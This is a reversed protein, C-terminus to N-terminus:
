LVFPTIVFSSATSRQGMKMRPADEYTVPVQVKEYIIVARNGELDVGKNLISAINEGAKRAASDNGNAMADAIAEFYLKSGQQVFETGIWKGGLEAGAGKGEGVLYVMTGDPRKWRHIADFDGSRSSQARYYLSPRAGDQWARQKAWTDLAREGIEHSADRVSKDWKKAATDDGTAQADNRLRRARDRAELLKDLRARESKSMLLADDRRKGSESLPLDQEPGVKAKVDFRTEGPLRSSLFSRFRGYYHEIEGFTLTTNPNAALFKRRFEGLPLASWQPDAVLSDVTKKAHLTAPEALERPLKGAALETDSIHGLELQKHRLNNLDDLARLLEDDAMPGKQGELESILAMKDAIEIAVAARHAALKEQPTYKAYPKGLDLQAFLHALNPDRTQMVHRVEERVAAPTATEDVLIKTVRGREIVAKAVRAGGLQGPPVLEIQPQVEGPHPPGLVDHAAALILARADTVLQDMAAPSAKQLDALRSGREQPTSATELRWRATECAQELDAGWGFHEYLKAVLKGGYAHALEIVRPHGALQSYFTLPLDSTFAPDALARLFSPVQEPAVMALLEDIVRQEFPPAKGGALGGELRRLGEKAAPDGKAVLVAADRAAVVARGTQVGPPFTGEPVYYTVEGTPLRGELVGPMTKSQTLSKGPMSPDAPDYFAELQARAEPSFAVFGRVLPRFFTAGGSPPKINLQSLRLQMEAIHATYGHLSTQLEAADIVGSGAAENLLKLEEAWLSEIQDFLKAIEAPSAEGRSLGDLLRKLPARKAELENVRSALKEVIKGGIAKTLREQLPETIFKGAELGVMLAVNQFIADVREDGTMWRGETILHQLEGFGHLSIMATGARGLGLSLKAIRGADEPLQFVKAYGMNVLKLFGMTVSNWFWDVVFRGQPGGILVGQGFRSVTTFVLGGILAEGALAYGLGVGAARFGAFALSGATGGTLAAAAVIVLLKAVINIRNVWKLRSQFTDVDSGIRKLADSTKTLAAEALKRRAEGGKEDYAATLDDVLQHLESVDNWARRQTNAFFPLKDLIDNTLSDLARALAMVQLEVVMGTLLAVDLQLDAYFSSIQELIDPAEDRWAQEIRDRQDSLEGSMSQPGRRDLVGTIEEGRTRFGPSRNLIENNADFWSRYEDELSAVASILKSVGRKDRLYLGTLWDPFAAMAREAEAFPVNEVTPGFAIELAEGYLSAIRHVELTADAALDAIYSDPNSFSALRDFVPGVYVAMELLRRVRARLGPDDGTPMSRPADEDFRPRSKAIASLALELKFTSALQIKLAGLRELAQQVLVSTPVEDSIEQEPAAAAEAVKDAVATLTGAGGITTAKDGRTLELEISGHLDTFYTHIRHNVGRKTKVVEDAIEVYSTGDNYADLVLSQNSYDVIRADLRRRHPEGPRREGAPDIEFLHQADKAAAPKQTGLYRLWIQLIVDGYGTTRTGFTLEFPESWGVIVAHPVLDGDPTLITHAAATASVLSSNAVGTTSGPAAAPKPPAKTPSKTPRTATKTM